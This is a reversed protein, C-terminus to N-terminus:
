QLKFEQCMMLFLSSLHYLQKLIKLGLQMNCMTIVWTIKTNSRHIRVCSEANSNAHFELRKHLVTIVHTHTHLPSFGRFRSYHCCTCSQSYSMQANTWLLIFTYNKTCILSCSQTNACANNHMYYQNAAAYPCLLKWMIMQYMSYDLIEYLESM